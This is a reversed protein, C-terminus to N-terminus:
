EVTLRHLVDGSTGVFGCGILLISGFESTRMGAVEFCVFEQSVSHQFRIRLKPNAQLFDIQPYTWCICIVRSCPVGSLMECDFPLLEESLKGHTRVGLMEWGVLRHEKPLDTAGFCCVM